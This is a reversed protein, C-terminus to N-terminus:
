RRKLSTPGAWGTLSGAGEDLNRAQKVGDLDVLVRHKTQWRCLPVWIDKLM